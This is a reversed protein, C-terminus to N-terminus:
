GDTSRPTRTPDRPLQFAFRAGGEARNGGTIEGGHARVIGHSLSLGLGTGKGQPKTTFFPEFIRSLSEAPIGPGGDLVEFGVWDATSWTRVLGRAGPVGEMAHAANVLLNTIVQRVQDADASVAPLTPDLGLTWVVGQGGLAPTTVFTERVVANLDTARRELPRQRAFSLLDTVIRAARMAEGRITDLGRGVEEQVHPDFSLAQAMAAIGALPNNLEHAVGSVLSGLAAMKESHTLRERLEVEDTVDRAIALVARRGGQEEVPVVVMAAQRQAGDRRRFHFMFDRTEGELTGALQAEVYGWEAPIVFAQLTLAPEPATVGALRFAARNASVFRGERDLTFIALPARNFLVRFRRESRRLAETALRERTVDRAVAVAGAPTGREELPAVSVEAIRVGDPRRILAEYRRGAGSPAEPGDHPLLLDLPQGLLQSAGTGFLEAAAPNALVVRGDPGTLLIAEVATAVLRSYRSELRVYQTLDDVAVVFGGGQRPTATLVAHQGRVTDLFRSTRQGSRRAESFPDGTPPWDTFLSAVDLGPLATVEVGAMEAIFRNAREIRGDDDVLALGNGTGDFAAQWEQKIRSVQAVVRSRGVALAALDAFALLLRREPEAYPRPEPSLLVLWGVLGRGHRLPLVATAGLGETVAVAQLPSEPAARLDETFFPLAQVDPHAELQALLAQALAPSLGCLAGVSALGRREDRLFLGAARAPVLALAEEVVAAITGEADGTAALHHAVRGLQVVPDGTM